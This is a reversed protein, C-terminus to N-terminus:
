VCLQLAILSVEENEDWRERMPDRTNITKETFSNAEIAVRQTEAKQLSSSWYSGVTSNFFCGLM